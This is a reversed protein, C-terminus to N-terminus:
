KSKISNILTAIQELGDFTSPVKEESPMINSFIVDEFKSLAGPNEKNLDTAYDAYSQIFQCLSRRLELQLIQTRLSSHNQLAVRFYYIFILTLSIFPIFSFVQPLISTAEPKSKFMFFEIILPIPIILALLILLGRSNRLEEKKQKWLSNFGDYLGVFNFASEYNKLSNKIDEIKKEHTSIYGDWNLSFNKADEVKKIFEDFTKVDNSELFENMIRLPMERLAFDIQMRETEDFKNYNVIGFEKIKKPMETSFNSELSFLIPEICFRFCCVFVTNVNEKPNNKLESIFREGAKDINYRAKEDWVDAEELFANFIQGVLRNREKEFGDLAPLTELTQSYKTMANKVNSKSFFQLSMM